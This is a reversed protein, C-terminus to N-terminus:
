VEKFDFDQTYIICTFFNCCEWAFLSTCLQNSRNWDFSRSYLFLCMRVCVCVCLFGRGDNASCIRQHGFHIEYLTGAFSETLTHTHRSTQCMAFGILFRLIRDVSNPQIKKALGGGQGNFDCPGCPPFIDAIAFGGIVAVM